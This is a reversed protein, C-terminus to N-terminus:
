WDKAPPRAMYQVLKKVLESVEDQVNMLAKRKNEPRNALWTEIPQANGGPLGYRSGSGSYSVELDDLQYKYRGERCTIRLTHHIYIEKSGGAAPVWFFSFAGRAAVEASAGDDFSIVSARYTDSIFRKAASYLEQAGASDVNVVGAYHVKGNVLPLVDLLEDTQASMVAPFSLGLFLVLTRM